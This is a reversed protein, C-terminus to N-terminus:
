ILFICLVQDDWFYKMLFSDKLCAQNLIASMSCQRTGRWVAQLWLPTVKSKVMAKVVNSAISIGESEEEDTVLTQSKSNKAQIQAPPSANNRRPSYPASNTSWSSHPTSPTPAKSSTATNVALQTPLVDNACSTVILTVSSTKLSSRLFGGKGPADQKPTTTCTARLTDVSVM